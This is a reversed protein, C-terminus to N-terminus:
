NMSCLPLKHPKVFNYYTKWNKMYQNASKETKLGRIVKDRERFTAHYREIIQNGMKSTLHNIGKKHFFVDDRANTPFERRLAKVYFHGKDTAVYDPKESIVAKAKKIIGQADRIRRLKTIQTALLFRSDSDLANWCWENERGIHLSQEDIHITDSTKPKLTNTYENIRGMFRNIWRRITEHHLKLGFNKYLTDQVDRLSNGKYYMDLVLCLIRANGKIGKAPDLVCYAGCTLCKYRQKNGSKNKRIGKPKLKDSKCNPCEKEELIGEIQFDDTEVKNKLKNLLIIANIHKCYMGAERCRNTYDPCTCSYADLHRVKYQTMGDSSPVIYTTDNVKEPMRTNLVEVARKKRAESEGTLDTQM